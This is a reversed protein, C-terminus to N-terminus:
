VAISCQKGRQGQSHLTEWHLRWSLMGGHQACLQPTTCRCCCFAVCVYDACNCLCCCAQSRLLLLLLVTAAVLCCCVTDLASVAQLAKDAYLSEFVSLLCTNPLGAWDVAEDKARGGGRPGRKVKSCPAPPPWRALTSDEEGPIADTKRVAGPGEDLAKKAQGRTKVMTPELEFADPNGRWARLKILHEYRCERHRIGFAINRLGTCLTTHALGTSRPRSSMVAAIFRGLLETFYVLSIFQGGMVKAQKAPM